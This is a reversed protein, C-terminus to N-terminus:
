ETQLGQLFAAIDEVDQEEVPLGRMMEVRELAAFILSSSARQTRPFTWTPGNPVGQAMSGHCRSCVSAYVAGGALRDPDERMVDAPPRANEGPVFARDDANGTDLSRRLELSWRFTAPDFAAAASVDDRSGEDIVLSIQHPITDGVAPTGSLPVADAEFLVPGASFGLNSMLEPQGAAENERWSAMGEDPVRGDVTIAAPAFTWDDAQDQPATRAASWEWLDILSAEGANMVGLSGVREAPDTQALNAHCMGACGLGGDEYWGEPDDIPFAIMVRDEDEVGSLTHAANVVGENPAGPVLAAVEAPAWAAGDWTWIAREVSETHGPDEWSIAFYINASDYAARVEIPIPVADYHESLPYNNQPVGRVTTVPGDWDSLDGDIAIAGALEPAQIVRNGRETTDFAGHDEFDLFLLRDGTHNHSNDTVALSFYTDAPTDITLDRGADSGGDGEVGADPEPMGGDPTTEGDCGALVLLLLVRM